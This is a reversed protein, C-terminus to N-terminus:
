RNPNGDLARRAAERAADFVQQSDFEVNFKPWPNNAPNGGASQPPSSQPGTGLGLQSGGGIGNESTGTDPQDPLQFQGQFTQLTENFKQESNELFGRDTETVAQNFQKVYPDLVSHIEGPVLSNLRNIATAIYGGSKSDVVAHRVNEGMLTVAFLTTLMCLLGGKVAGLLAGAQRDFGRLRLREISKKVFGYAIWVVLSTALFLILMAAFKNWPQESSIYTSLPQCFNLAVFYSIFIAALSAVQWALGKWMGFLIAGALVALMVVDYTSM